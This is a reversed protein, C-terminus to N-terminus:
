HQHCKLKLLETTHSQELLEEPRRLSSDPFPSHVHTSSREALRMRPRGTERNFKETELTGMGMDGTKSKENWHKSM